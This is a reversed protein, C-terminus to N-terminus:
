HLMNRLVILSFSFPVEAIAKEYRGADPEGFLVALIASTDVIM